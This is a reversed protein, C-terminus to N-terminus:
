CGLVAAEPGPLPPRRGRSRWSPRLSMCASPLSSSPLRTPSFLAKSSHDRLAADLDEVIGAGVRAFVAVAARRHEAPVLAVPVTASMSSQWTYVSTASQPPPNQLSLDGTDTNLSAVQGRHGDVNRGLQVPPTFLAGARVRACSARDDVHAPVRAAVVLVQRVTLHEGVRRRRRRKEAEGAARAACV